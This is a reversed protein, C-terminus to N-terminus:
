DCLIGKLMLAYLWVSALQPGSFMDHMDKSQNEFISLNRATREEKTTSTTTKSSPTTKSSTTTIKTSVKVNLSSHSASSSSTYKIAGHPNYLKVAKSSSHNPHKHYSKHHEYSSKHHEHSSKHHEHSSKHHEHSSKHPKMPSSPHSKYKYLDMSPPLKPHETPAKRHEKPPKPSPSKYKTAPSSTPRPSPSKYKTAPSPTPRPSPSKYKKAPSPTPRPSPSKYFRKGRHGPGSRPGPYRAFQLRLPSSDADHDDMKYGKLANLCTAACVPNEFDVFCLILPDGGHHKPEKNVLRVEKYGLFPRFIHAVERRTCDPSLGEVFLTNSADPPLPPPMERGTRAMPDMPHQGGLGMGRGNAALDPGVGPGGVVGGPEGVPLGSMGGGAGFDRGLGAGGRFNGAEGRFNGAESRFDGAEGRFKGAEGRFKGAEGSGFSSLQASQLYRDYASGISKTDKLVRPGGRDDHPLYNLMEYGSPVVSLPMDYDARPRKPMAASPHMAPQRNWYADAMSNKSLKSYLEAPSIKRREILEKLTLELSSSSFPSLNMGGLDKNLIGVNSSSRQQMALLKLISMIEHSFPKSHDGAIFEQVVNNVEILSCGPSKKTRRNRILKRMRSVDDWRGLDAYINSLLVYNGLDDPELVILNKMATVAIELNGYTRCSSLLSGWITSDTAVPM